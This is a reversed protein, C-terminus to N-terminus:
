DILLKQLEATHSSGEQGYSLTRDYLPAEADLCELYDNRHILVGSIKLWHHIGSSGGIYCTHIAILKALTRSSRIISTSLITAYVSRGLRVCQAHNERM